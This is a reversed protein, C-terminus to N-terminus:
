SPQKAGSAPLGLAAPEPKLTRLSGSDADLALSDGERLIRLSARAVGRVSLGAVYRPPGFEPVLLELGAATWRARALGLGPKGAALGLAAAEAPARTVLFGKAQALRAADAPTLAPTAYVDRPGLAKAADYTLVGDFRRPAAPAFRLQARVGPSESPAPARSAAPLRPLLGRARLLALARSPSLEARRAASGRLASARASAGSGSRVITLWDDPGLRWQARWVPLGGLLGVLEDREPVGELDGLGPEPS